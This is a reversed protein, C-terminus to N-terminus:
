SSILPSAMQMQFLHVISFKWFHSCVCVCMCVFVCVCVCLCLCALLSVCALLFVCVCVVVCVCVIASLFMSLCTLFIPESHLNALGKTKTIGDKVEEIEEDTTSDQKDRYECSFTKSAASCINVTGNPSDVVSAIVLDRGVGGIANSADASSGSNENKKLDKLLTEFATTLRELEKERQM